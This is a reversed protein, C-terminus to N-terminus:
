MDTVLIVRINIQRLGCAFHYGVVQIVVEPAHTRFLILQESSLTRWYGGLLFFVPNLADRYPM